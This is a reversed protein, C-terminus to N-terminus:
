GLYYEKVAQLETESVKWGGAMVGPTFPPPHAFGLTHGIEHAIVARSTRRQHRSFFPKHLPEFYYGANFGSSWGGHDLTNFCNFYIGIADPEPTFPADRDDCPGVWDGELVHFGLGSAGWMALAEDRLTEWRRRKWLGLTHGVADVIRIPQSYKPSGGVTMTPGGEAAGPTWIMVM